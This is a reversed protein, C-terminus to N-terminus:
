RLEGIAAVASGVEDENNIISPALRAYSVPYPSTSAVIGKGGLHAVVQEPTYGAV